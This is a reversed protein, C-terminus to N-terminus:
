ARISNIACVFILSVHSVDAHDRRVLDDSSAALGMAGLGLGVSLLLSHFAFEGIM